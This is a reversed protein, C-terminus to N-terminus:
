GLLSKKMDCQRAEINSTLSIVQSAISSDRIWGTNESVSYGEGVSQCKCIEIHNEFVCSEKGRHRSNVRGLVATDLLTTMLWGSSNLHLHVSIFNLKFNLEENIGAVNWTHGTTVM